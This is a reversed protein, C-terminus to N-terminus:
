LGVVNLALLPAAKFIDVRSANYPLNALNDRWVTFSNIHTDRLMGKNFKQLVSIRLRINFEEITDKFNYYEDILAMLNVTGDFDNDNLALMDNKIKIDLLELQNM